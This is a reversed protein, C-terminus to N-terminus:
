VEVSNVMRMIIAISAITIAGAVGLWVWGWGRYMPEMYDPNVVSIFALLGVPMGGLVFASVRGEATLVDIERRIEERARIFDALTHLLDALKGGVTQQIRIAQVVWTLDKIHLRGAMRDLADLLPANLSTEHVVQVLEESLPAPIEEALMQISRLFSHGAELSAAITTLADPLQAELAARRRSAVVRPAVAAAYAVAIAAAVAFLWSSTAVGIIGAAIVAGTAVLVVFEGAGVPMRATALAAALSGKRDVRQLGHEALAGFGGLLPLQHETVADVPVDREGFPLDLVAALDATRERGRLLVAATAMAIGLGVLSAALYTSM